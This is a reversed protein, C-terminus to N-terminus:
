KVEYEMSYYQVPTDIIGSQSIIQFGIKNYCHVAAENAVCVDLRFRRHGLSLGERIYEKMLKYGYGKQRHLSDIGIKSLYFDDVDVKEFLSQSALMKEKYQKLDESDIDKILTMLDAKRCQQLEKGSLAIYGGIIQDNFYIARIRTVSIESSPRAMWSSLIRNAIVSDGFFWDYYPNGALYIWPLVTPIIKNLAIDKSSLNIINMNIM